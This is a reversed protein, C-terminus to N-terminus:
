NSDYNFKKMITKLATTNLYLKIKREVLEYLARKDVGVRKWSSPRLLIRMTGVSNFSQSSKFRLM